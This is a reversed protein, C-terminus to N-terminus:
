SFYSHMQGKEASGFPLIRVESDSAPSTSKSKFAGKSRSRLRKSESGSELPMKDLFISFDFCILTVFKFFCLYCNTKLYTRDCVILMFLMVPFPVPKLDKGSTM